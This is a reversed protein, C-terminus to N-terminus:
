VNDDTLNAMTRKLNEIDNVMLDLLEKVLTENRQM